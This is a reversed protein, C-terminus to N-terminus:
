GEKQAEEMEFFSGETELFSESAPNTTARLQERRQGADALSRLKPNHLVTAAKM